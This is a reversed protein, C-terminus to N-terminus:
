IVCAPCGQKKLALIKLLNAGKLCATGAISNKHKIIFSRLATYRSMGGPIM